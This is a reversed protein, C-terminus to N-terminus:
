RDLLHGTLEAASVGIFAGALVDAPYHVGTHVRSYGVLTALARLPASLLPQANAAGTAFAFASAAHGSPFSSSRPMQVHRRALEEAERREPRRRTTLPKAVLNAFGSAIGLSVLGKRAALRGSPGGLLALVAAAAFWLKSHDAARSLGRMAADLSPTESAAIAGYVATDIAKAENLWGAM